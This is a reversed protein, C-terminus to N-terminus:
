LKDVTAAFRGYRPRWDGLGIMRGATGAIQELESLNLVEDDLEGEVDAAWRIFIPRTRMTKSRQVVVPRTLRFRDDAWLEEPNRPGGYALPNVMSTVFVGRTVQVGAKTIRAADVLCRQVNEGPLYPGVEDDYYLGGMFELHAIEEHDAETKKRKGTITKMQRAIPDLPDALRVNHMILPATGELTIRFQM